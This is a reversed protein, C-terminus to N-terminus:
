RPRRVRPSLGRARDIMSQRRHDHKLVVGGVHDCHEVMSPPYILEFLGFSSDREMIEVVARELNEESLVATTKGKM